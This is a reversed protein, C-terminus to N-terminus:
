ARPQATLVAPLQHCLPLRGPVVVMMTRVEEPNQQAASVLARLCGSLLRARSLMTQSMTRLTLAQFSQACSKVVRRGAGSGFALYAAARESNWSSLVSTPVGM